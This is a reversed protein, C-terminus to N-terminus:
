AVKQNRRAYYKGPVHVGDCRVAKSEKPGKKGRLWFWGVSFLVRQAHECHYPAIAKLKVTEAWGQVTPRDTATLWPCIQYAKNVVKRVARARLKLANRDRTYFGEKVANQNSPRANPLLARQAGLQTDEAKSM